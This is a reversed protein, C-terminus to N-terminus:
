RLTCHYFENLVQDVYAWGLRSPHSAQDISFYKDTDHSQFDVVPVHYKAGVSALMDYYVQRTAASVGLAQWVTGNIPRSLLLPQAGLQTLIRLLIDLDAWEVSNKLANLYIQDHNAGTSLLPPQPLQQQDVSLWISNLIGYPNSATDPIELQKASAELASWDFADSHRPPNLQLNPHAAFYVLANWHDQLEIIATQLKGLPWAAYYM